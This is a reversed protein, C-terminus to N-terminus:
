ISPLDLLQSVLCKSVELTVHLQTQVPRYQDLLDYCSITTKLLVSGWTGPSRVSSIKVRCSDGCMAVKSHWASM